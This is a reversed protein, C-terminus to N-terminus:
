NSDNKIKKKKFNSETGNLLRKYNNIHKCIILASLFTYCIAETLGPSSIFYDLFNTAQFGVIYLIWATIMATITAATSSLSVYGTIFFIILFAILCTIASLPTLIILVGLSTAVAKGGKFDLFIPYVHGIIAAAGYFFLDIPSNWVNTWSLIKVLLIIIIGKLVDCIFVLFGVKKGLVRIANTSGINGSGYERIDKEEILKGLVLGFPISGILYSIILFIIALSADFAISLEM